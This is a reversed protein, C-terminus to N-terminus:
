GSEAPSRAGWTHVRTAGDREIIVSVAGDVATTLWRRNAKVENWREDGVRSLGTSQVVISPDVAEVFAMAARKASGHHPAEMVDARLAPRAASIAEIAPKEIDGTLLVSREGAGTDVTLHAALSSDNDSRWTSGAPPHIFRLTAEGLPIEDGAAVIRVEVGLADLSSLLFAVPGSPDESAEAVVSESVLARRVGLPRAVDPLASYHDVNPHTIVVTPVRWVGLTRMARPLTREGIWLRTSGCDWLLPPGGRARILHCAGDSVSFTDLRLAAGDGPTIPRALAFGTWVAMITTAALLRGRSRGRLPAGLWGVAVLLAGATWAASLHPLYVVTGPLGDLWSGAATMATAVHALGAGLIGGAAPWLAALMLTVAGLGLAVVLAPFLVLSGIVGFPSFVGIHHAILPTAAVWACVGTALASTLWRRAGAIVTERQSRLRLPTWREALPGAFVILAGVVGFSLQYGASWLEMPRWILVAVGTWALVGLPHHRRGASLAALYGLAMIAARIVPTRAPVVIVFMLVLAALILPELRGWDRLLRLGVLTLWVLAGLHLGSIALMHAVGLRVFAAEVDRLAADREGLLLAKALSRGEAAGAGRTARELVKLTRARLAGVAARVSQRAAALAGLDRPAPAVHETSSVLLRGAVGAQRAWPRGDIEGPNEPARIPVLYGSARIADGARLDELDGEVRVRLRGRVDLREDNRGVVARAEMTFRTADGRRVFRAFRGWQAPGVQPADLVDGEITAIQRAQGDLVRGLFAPPAEHVRAAFWGAGLTLAALALSIKCLFGRLRWSTLAAAAAVSLWTWSSVTPAARALLLGLAVCTWAALAPLASRLSLPSQHADMM